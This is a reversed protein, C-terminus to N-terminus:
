RNMKFFCADDSLINKIIRNKNYEKKIKKLYLITSDNLIRLENLQTM